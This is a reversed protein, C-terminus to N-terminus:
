KSLFKFTHDRQPHWEKVRGFNALFRDVIDRQINVSPHIFHFKVPVEKNTYSHCRKVPTNDMSNLRDVIDDSSGPKVCQILVQGNEENNGISIMKIVNRLDQYSDIAGCRCLLNVIERRHTPRGLSFTLDYEKTFSDSKISASSRPVMYEKRYGSGGSVVNSWSMSITM